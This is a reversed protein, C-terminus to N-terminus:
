KSSICIIIIIITIIIIIIKNTFRRIYLINPPAYFVVNTFRLYRLHVYDTLSVRSSSIYSSFFLYHFSAGLYGIAYVFSILLFSFLVQVIRNM